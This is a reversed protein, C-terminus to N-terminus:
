PGLVTPDHSSEILQFEVSNLELGVSRSVALACGSLRESYSSNMQFVDALKEGFCPYSHSLGGQSSVPLWSRLEPETRAARPVGGLEVIGPLHVTRLFDKPPLQSGRKFM